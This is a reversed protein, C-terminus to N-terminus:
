KILQKTYSSFYASLKMYSLKCNQSGYVYPALQYADFIFNIGTQNLYWVAYNKEKAALGAKFWKKDSGLNKTSLQLYCSKAVESLASSPSQWLVQWALRKDAQLDYNVSFNTTNPHAAGRYFIMKSFLLSIINKSQWKIQYHIDLQNIGPIDPNMMDNNIEHKFASIEEDIHKKILNNLGPQNKFYPYSAEIRLHKADDAQQWHKVEAASVFTLNLLGLLFFINKMPLGTLLM